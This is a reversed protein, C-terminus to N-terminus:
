KQDLPRRLLNLIEQNQVYLVMAAKDGTDLVKQRVWDDFERDKSGKRAYYGYGMKMIEDM